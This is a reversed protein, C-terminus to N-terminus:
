KNEFSTKRFIIGGVAFKKKMFDWDKTCNERKIETDVKKIEIDAKRLEQQMDIDAKRLEQQM